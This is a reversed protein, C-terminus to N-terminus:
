KFYAYLDHFKAPEHILIAAMSGIVAVLIIYGFLIRSRLSVVMREKNVITIIILADSWRRYTSNRNAHSKRSQTLFEKAVYPKVQLLTKM